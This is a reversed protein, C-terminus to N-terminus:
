LDAKSGRVMKALNFKTKVRMPGVHAAFEAAKHKLQIEQDRPFAFFVTVAGGSSELRVDAPHFEKLGEVHLSAEATLRERLEPSDLSEFCRAPVRSVSVVYFRQAGELIQRARPDTAARDGYQMRVLAQRVTLASHWRVMLEFAPLGDPEQAATQNGMGTRNPKPRLYQPSVKEIQDLDPVVSVARSWPSSSLIHDIDKWVWETFPKSDWVKEAWGLGM